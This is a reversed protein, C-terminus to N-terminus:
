KNREQIEQDKWEDRLHDALDGDRDATSRGEKSVERWWNARASSYEECGGCVVEVETELEAGFQCSCPDYDDRRPEEPRM